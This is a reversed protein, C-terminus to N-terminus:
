GRDLDAGDDRGAADRSPLWMANPDDTSPRRLRAALLWVGLLMMMIGAGQCFGKLFGDLESGLWTLAMGPLVLGVGSSLTIRSTMMM